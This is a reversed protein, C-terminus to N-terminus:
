RLDITIKRFSNPDIVARWYLISCAITAPTHPYQDRAAARAIQGKSLGQLLQGLIQDPGPSSQRHAGVTLRLAVQELADCESGTDENLLPYGFAGALTCGLVGLALFPLRM